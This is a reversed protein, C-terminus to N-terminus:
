VLNFIMQAGTLEGTALRQVREAVVAAERQL